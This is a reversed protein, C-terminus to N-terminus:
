RYVVCCRHKGVGFSTAKFDPSFERQVLTHLQLRTYSTLCPPVVFVSFGSSKSAKPQVFYMKLTIKKHSNLYSLAIDASSRLKM